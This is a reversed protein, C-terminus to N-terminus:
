DAQLHRAAIARERDIRSEWTALVDGHANAALSIQYQPYLREESIQIEDGLAAGTDDIVVAFAGIPVTGVWDMWAVMINGSPLLALAPAIQVEGTGKSIQIESGIRAGAASYFQGQIGHIPTDKVYSQWAVLFDGDRTAAVAPRRQRGQTAPNAVFSGGLPTGDREYQRALIDPTDVNGGEWAVLFDGAANAAVAVNWIEPSQGGDIRLEGGIPAGRRTLLRGYVAVSNREVKRLAQEWVVVVGGPRVAVQPRRQFHNTTANVRFRQGLPAGQASFRQGYVDQERIERRLYFPEIVMYAREQTWVVLFEGGPLAAVAPEKHIDFVGSAPLSPLNNGALILEPTTPNGNRDFARGLIGHLDNEWVILSSGSPSSAAQPGLQRPNNNQNVKFEGGVLEPQAWGPVAVTALLAAAMLWQVPKSRMDHIEEPSCFNIHQAQM